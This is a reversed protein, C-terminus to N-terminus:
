LAPSEESRPDAQRGHAESAEARNERVHKSATMASTRTHLVSTVHQSDYQTPYCDRCLEVALDQRCCGLKFQNGSYSFANVVHGVQGSQNGELRDSVM